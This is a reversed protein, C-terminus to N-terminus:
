ARYSEHQLNKNKLVYAPSLSKFVPRANEQAPPCPHLPYPSPRTRKAKSVGQKSGVGGQGMSKIKKINEM